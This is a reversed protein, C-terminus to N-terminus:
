DEDTSTTNSNSSNTENNTLSSESDEDMEPPEQMQEQRGEGDIDNMSRDFDGGSNNQLVLFVGTAIVAGILIGIVLTLLEKKM